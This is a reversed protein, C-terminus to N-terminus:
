LFSYAHLCQEQMYVDCTHIFVFNDFLKGRLEEAGGGDDEITGIPEDKLFSKFSFHCIICFCWTLFLRLFMLDFIIDSVDLWFYHWFCWTWFYHWFCWTLIIDSVDLWFYHWFCWTLFKKKNFFVNINWYNNYRPNYCTISCFILCFFLKFLLLLFLAFLIYIYISLYIYKLEWRCYIKLCQGGGGGGGQM